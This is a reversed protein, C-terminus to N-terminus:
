AMKRQFLRRVANVIGFVIGIGAFVLLTIGFDNLGSYTTVAGETTANMFITQFAQVFLSGLKPLLSFASTLASIIAETM